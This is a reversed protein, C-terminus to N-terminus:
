DRVRKAVTDEALEHAVVLRHIMGRQAGIIATDAHDGFAPERRTLTVAVDVIDGLRLGEPQLTATLQGDITAAELNTERRLITFTKGGALLDISGGNRIIRARHITLAQTSPDWTEIISGLAALGESANVRTALEVFADGGGPFLRQQQDLLLVDVAAGTPKLDTPIRIDRVWSGPPGYDPKDAARAHSALVCALTATLVRAAGWGM